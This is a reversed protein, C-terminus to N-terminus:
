FSVYTMRIKWTDAYPVFIRAAHGDNLGVSTDMTEWVDRGIQNVQYITNVMKGPNTAFEDAFMKRIAELGFCTRGRNWVEVANETYLAVIAAVDRNNYAEQFKMEVAEIEQRLKPDVTKQEQAVTPLVFGIALGALILLFHIKM